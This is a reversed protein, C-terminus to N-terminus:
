QLTFNDYQLQKMKMKILYIINTNGIYIQGRETINYKLVTVVTHYNTKKM